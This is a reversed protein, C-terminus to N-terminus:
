GGWPRCLTRLRGRWADSGTSPAMQGHGLSRYGSPVRLDDASWRGIYLLVFQRGDPLGLPPDILIGIGPGFRVRIAIATWDARIAHDSSRHWRPRRLQDRAPRPRWIPIPISSPSGSLGARSRWTGAMPRIRQRRDAVPPLAPFAPASGSLVTPRSRSRLSHPGVILSSAPHRTSTLRGFVASCLDLRNSPEFKM